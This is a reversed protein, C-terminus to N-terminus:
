SENPNYRGTETDYASSGPDHHFEGIGAQQLRAELEAVRVLLHDVYGTLLRLSEDVSHRADTDSDASPSGEPTSLGPRTGLQARFRDLPTDTGNEDSLSM